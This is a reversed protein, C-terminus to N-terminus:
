HLLRWTTGNTTFYLGKFPAALWADSSGASAFGAFAGGTTVGRASSWDLGGDKSWSLANLGIMWLTGGDGSVALGGAGINGVDPLKPTVNHESVLQWSAGGDETSYLASNYSEMGAPQVCLLLWHGPGLPVLGSPSLMLPASLVTCANVVQQWSSGADTTVLLARPGPTSGGVSFVGETPGLRALLTAEPFVAPSSVPVPNSSSPALTGVDYTLLRSPCDGPSQTPKSCLYAVVWLSGGDLSVSTPIGAVTVTRWEAGGDSTFLVVDHHKARDYAELYGTGPNEFALDPSTLQFRTLRVPLAGTVTWTVGGDSTALFYVPGALDNPEQIGGIGVGVEGTFMQLSGVQAAPLTAPMVAPVIAKPKPPPPPAAGLAAHCRAAIDRYALFRVGGNVITLRVDTHVTRGPGVKTTSWYSIAGRHPGSATAVVKCKPWGAAGGTNTIDLAVRDTSLDTPLLPHLVTVKFSAVPKAPPASRGQVAALTSGLAAVATLGSVVLAAARYRM